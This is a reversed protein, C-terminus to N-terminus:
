RATRFGRIKSQYYASSFVNYDVRVGLEPNAAHILDWAGDNNVDALLGVHDIRNTGAISFFILDGPRLAGASVSRMGAFQSRSGNPIGIGIQAYSWSALGSCDFTNPGKSGWVYRKGVQALAVQVLRDAGPPPPPGGVLIPEGWAGSADDWNTLAGPDSCPQGGPPVWTTNTWQVTIFQPDLDQLAINDAPTPTPTSTPTSPMATIAPDTTATPFAYQAAPNGIFIVDVTEPQGVPALVPVRVTSTGSPIASPLEADGAIERATQSYAWTADSVVAGGPTKVARLRVREPYAIPIAVLAHNLWTLDIFYLQRTGDPIGPYGTVVPGAHANVTVHLPGVEIRQGLTYNTGVRAYPTPSPFPPGGRDAYEQEWQAWFVDEDWDGGETIPRTHRIVEKVPGATGWPRPTPSPCAWRPAGATELVGAAGCGLTLLTLLAAALLILSTRM